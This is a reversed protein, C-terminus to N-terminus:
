DSCTKIYLQIVYKKNANSAVEDNTKEGAMKKRKQVRKEPFWVEELKNELSFMKADAL